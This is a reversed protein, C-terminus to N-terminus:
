STLHAFDATTTLMRSCCSPFFFFLAQWWNLVGAQSRSVPLGIQCALAIHSETLHSNQGPVFGIQESLVQNAIIIPDLDDWQGVALTDM